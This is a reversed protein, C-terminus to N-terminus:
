GNSSGEAKIQLKFNLLECLEDIEMDTMMPFKGGNTAIDAIEPAVKTQQQVVQYARLAALMAALDRSTM